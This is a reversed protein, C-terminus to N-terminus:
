FLDKKKSFISEWQKIKSMEPLDIVKLDDSINLCKYVEDSKKLPDWTVNAMGDINPNNPNGTIAFQTWISVMRDITKYDRSEKPMRKSLLNWFLYTLEDGHSVGKVGRGHRMIRFYNYLEESDFDFRYLYIPTGATHHFRLQLFRHMPVLFYFYSCLEMFNEATPTEGNVYMKKLVTALKLTEASNRQGEVLETPVYSEFTELEKLLHPYYKPFPLFLLGEYSTNGIMTPISNGWATKVMERPAKPLVCDATQYPETTPGFAFMKKDALEEPTLVLHEEKAMQYPHAKMLFELVDKDNDEGKYGLRKAIAFARHQCETHAWICMATGSMLIARHFLGRTQETIMMYHTSASGASEGFLTINDPDGGFNTCNNKVWRLAMVIDKLAANGPINLDESKLSLFGLIGLRYQVTVLIVDKKIFYDGGYYNENAEGCIFGGGHLFVMVPRKKEPNLNNTYVNLYLCDESGTSKGSIIDTQVSKPAATVCDKVGEWPVPRQPAKFRLEGLPPQAYPIGEFSYFSEDYVNLRKVGKIKGYETDVIQTENTVLRYTTLKNEICKIKWRLRELFSNNFNM